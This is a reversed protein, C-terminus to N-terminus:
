ERKNLLKIGNIPPFLYDSSSFRDHYQLWRKLDSSMKFSFYVYRQQKNKTNKILIAKNKFDIDEPKLSLCESIRMGTDLLLRTIMWNRYGHFLQQIM